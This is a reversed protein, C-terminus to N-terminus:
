EGGGGEADDTDDTAETGAGWKTWSGSEGLFYHEGADVVYLISGPAIIDGDALGTVTAGTTPMTEPATDAQIVARVKGNYLKETNIAFM